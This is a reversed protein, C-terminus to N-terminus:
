TATKRRPLFDADALHWDVAQIDMDDNSAVPIRAMVVQPANMPLLGVMVRKEHPRFLSRTIQAHFDVLHNMITPSAKHM